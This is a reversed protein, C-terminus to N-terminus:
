QPADQVTAHATVDTIEKPESSMADSVAALADPYGALVTRLMAMFQLFEPSSFLNVTAANQNTLLPRMVATWGPSQPAERGPGARLWFKPDEKHASTEAALRAQAKAQNIRAVFTRFPERAGQKTGKTIWSDFVPKAIGAAEAAVHPFGGARIYATIEKTLKDTPIPKKSAM